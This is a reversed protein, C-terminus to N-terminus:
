VKARELTRILPKGFVLIVAAVSIARVTDWTLTSSVLSYSLFSVVNEALSAAQNFSISTLPGVAFPWFWLNMVLGFGYSAVVAYVGLAILSKGFRRSVLGAGAGLWASAFMQYATWPGLGGFFLSSLAITTLGLLFGFRSGFVAGGLIITVFVLEFGGTGGTAVRLSAGLASLMGLLAIQKPGLLEGDLLFICALALGAIALVSMAGALESELGASATWLPWTFAILALASVLPMLFKRM